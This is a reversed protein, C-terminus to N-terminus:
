MRVQNQNLDLNKNDALSDQSVNEAKRLRISENGDGSAGRLGRRLFQKDIQTQQPKEVMRLTPWLGYLKHELIFLQKYKTWARLKIMSLVFLHAALGMSVHWLAHFQLLPKVFSFVYNERITTLVECYHKDIMWVALGFHQLIVVNWFEHYQGHKEKLQYGIYASVYVLVGFCTHHFIPWSVLFIYFSLFVLGYCTLIATLMKKNVKPEKMIYLLFFSHLAVLIMSTEDLMQMSRTLTMHFCLSGFGVVALLLFAHRFVPEVSNYKSLTFYHVMQPIIFALNSFTNWFEAIYYSLEYNAECWDISATHTWLGRQNVQYGSELPPLTTHPAM